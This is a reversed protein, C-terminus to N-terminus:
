AWIRTSRLQRLYCQIAEDTQKLHHLTFGLFHWATASEPDLAIANRLYKAAAEYEGLRVNSVGLNHQAVFLKPDLDVAISFASVAAQFDGNKYAALGKKMEENITRTRRAAETYEYDEDVYVRNNRSKQIQASVSMALFLVVVSPVLQRMSGGAHELTQVVPLYLDGEPAVLM